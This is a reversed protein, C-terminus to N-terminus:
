KATKIAESPKKTMYIYIYHVKLMYVDEDDEGTRKEVGTPGGEGWLLLGTVNM